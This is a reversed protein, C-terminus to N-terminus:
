GKIESWNRGWLYRGAMTLGVFGDSLIQGHREKLFRRVAHANRDLFFIKGEREKLTEEKNLIELSSLSVEGYFTLGHNEREDLRNYIGLLILETLENEVALEEKIEKRIFDFPHGGSYVGGINSLKAAHDVKSSRRHMVLHGDATVIVVNTGMGSPLTTWGYQEQYEKRAIDYLSYKMKGIALVIKDPQIVSNALDLHYADGDFLKPNTTKRKAFREAAVQLMEESVYPQFRKREKIKVQSPQWVGEHLIRVRGAVLDM